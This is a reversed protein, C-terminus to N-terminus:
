ATMELLESLAQRMALARDILLSGKGSNLPLCHAM